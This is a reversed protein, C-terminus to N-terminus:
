SLSVSYALSPHTKELVGVGYVPWYQDILWFNCVDLRYPSHTCDLHNITTQTKLCILRQLNNLALVMKIYIAM